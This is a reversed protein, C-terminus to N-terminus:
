PAVAEELRELSLQADSDEYKAAIFELTESCVILAELAARTRFLYFDLDTDNEGPEFFERLTRM